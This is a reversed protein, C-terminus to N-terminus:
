TRLAQMSKSKTLCVNKFSLMEHLDSAEHPALGKINAAM